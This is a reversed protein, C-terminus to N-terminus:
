KGIKENASSKTIISAQMWVKEREPELDAPRGGLHKSIQACCPLVLAVPNSVAFFNTQLLMRIRLRVWEYHKEEM